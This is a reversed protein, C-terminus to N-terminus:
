QWCSQSPRLDFAALKPLIELRRFQLNWSVSHFYRVERILIGLDTVRENSTFNVRDHPRIGIEFDKAVGNSRRGITQNIRSIDGLLLARVNDQIMAKDAEKQRCKSTQQCSWDLEESREQESHSEPAIPTLTAQPMDEIQGFRRPQQPLKLAFLNSM